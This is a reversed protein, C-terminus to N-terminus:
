LTTQLKARNSIRRKVRWSLLYPALEEVALVIVEEPVTLFKHEPEETTDDDVEILLLNFIAPLAPVRVDYNRGYKRAAAGAKQPTCGESTRDGVNDETEASDCDGESCGSYCVKEVLSM